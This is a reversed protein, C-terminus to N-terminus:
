DEAVKKAYTEYEVGNTKPTIYGDRSKLILSKDKLIIIEEFNQGKTLEIKSVISDKTEKVKLFKMVDNLLTPEKPSILENKEAMNLILSPNKDMVKEKIPDIYNSRFEEIDKKIDNILADKKNITNNFNDRDKKLDNVLEKFENSIRNGKTRIIE